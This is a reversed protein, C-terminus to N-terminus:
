RRRRRRPPPPEKERTFDYINSAGERDVVQVTLRRNVSRDYADARTENCIDIKATGRGIFRGGTDVLRFDIPRGYLKELEPIRIQSGYKAVKPDMAVAVYPAEGRLYAQLTFLEYGKRDFYGGQMRSNHPFYGTLKSKFERRVKVDGSLDDAEPHRRVEGDVVRSPGPQSEITRQRRDQRLDQRRDQRLDQSGDQRGDQRYRDTATGKGRLAMDLLDGLAKVSQETTVGSKGATRGDLKAQALRVDSEPRCDLELGPLCNGSKKGVPAKGFAVDYAGNAGRDFLSFNPLFCAANSDAAACAFADFFSANSLSERAFQAKVPGVQPEIGAHPAEPKLAM